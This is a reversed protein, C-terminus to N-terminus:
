MYKTLMTQTNVPVQVQRHHRKAVALICGAHHHEEGAGEEVLVQDANRQAGELDPCEEAHHGLNTLKHTPLRKNFPHFLEGNILLLFLNFSIRQNFM